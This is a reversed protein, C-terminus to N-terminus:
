QNLLSNQFGNIAKVKHLFTQQRKTVTAKANGLGLKLFILDTCKQPRVNQVSLFEKLSTFFPQKVCRLETTFWSECAYLIASSMWTKM